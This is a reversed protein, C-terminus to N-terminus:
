ILSIFSHIIATPFCSPRIEPLSQTFACAERFCFRGFGIVLRSAIYRQQRSQQEASFAAIKHTRFQRLSQVLVSLLDVGVKALGFFFAASLVAVALIWVSVLKVSHNTLLDFQQGFIM